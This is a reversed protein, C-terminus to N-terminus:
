FHIKEDKSKVFKKVKDNMLLFGHIFNNQNKSAKIENIDNSTIRIILLDSVRKTNDIYDSNWYTAHVIKM